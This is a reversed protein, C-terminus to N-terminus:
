KPAGTIDTLQAHLRQAVSEECRMAFMRVQSDGSNMGKFVIKGTNKPKPKGSLTLTFTTNEILMNILVISGNLSRLIMRSFNPKSTHAQIRLTGYCFKAFVADDGQRFFQVKEYEVIDRWDPDNDRRTEDNPDNAEEFAGDDNDNGIPPQPTAASAGFLNTMPAAAAVPVPPAFNGFPNTNTPTAAAAIAFPNATSVVGSAPPPVHPAISSTTNPHRRYWEEDLDKHRALYFNIARTRPACPHLQHQKLMAQDLANRAALIDSDAPVTLPHNRQTSMTSAPTLQINAFPNQKTGTISSTNVNDNNNTSSESSLTFKTKVVRRARLQSPDARQFGEQDTNKNTVDENDQNRPDDLEPSRKRSM